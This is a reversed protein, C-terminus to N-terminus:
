LTKIKNNLHLLMSGVLHVFALQVIYLKAPEM